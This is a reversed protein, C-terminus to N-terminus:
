SPVGVGWTRVTSMALAKSPAESTGPGPPQGRVMAGANATRLRRGGPDGRRFRPLQRIGDGLPSCTDTVAAAGFIQTTDVAVRLTWGKLFGEESAIELRPRSVKEADGSLSLKSRFLHLTSKAFAAFAM